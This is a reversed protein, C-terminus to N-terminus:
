KVRDVEFQAILGSCCLSEGVPQHTDSRCGCKDNPCNGGGNQQTVTATPVGTLGTNSVMTNNYTVGSIATDAGMVFTNGGMSTTLDGKTYGANLAAVTLAPTAGGYRKSFSIGSLDLSFIPKTADRFLAQVPAGFAILNGTGYGTDGTGWATNLAVSQQHNVFPNLSFSQAVYLLPIVSSVDTTLPSGAYIFMNFVPNAPSGVNGFPDVTTVNALGTIIGRADGAQLQTGAVLNVTGSTQFSSGPGFSLAGVGSTLVNVLGTYTTYTAM